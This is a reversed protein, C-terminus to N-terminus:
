RKIHCTCLFSSVAAEWATLYPRYVREIKIRRHAVPTKTSRTAVPPSGGGCRLFALGVAISAPVCRTLHANTRLIRSDLKRSIHPRYGAQRLEFYSSEQREDCFLSLAPTDGRSSQMSRVLLLRSPKCSCLGVYTHSMCVTPARTRTHLRWSM